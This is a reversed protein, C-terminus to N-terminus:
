GDDEEGLNEDIGFRVLVGGEVDVVVDGAARVAALAESSHDKRELSGIAVYDVGAEGVLQRVREPDGSAYVEEVVARRRGTLDTIDHGRWVLEHNEWGLYTPVGSNASIRAYESYPGGIAEIISVDPPQDRLYEVISRDGDTMWALGDIGLPRDSVQNLVMWVLHPVAPLVIVVVIVRRWLRRPTCMGVLVPLALALFTWAQIYSKFVTNMRHLREGYGDMVYIIEPVLFLFVGLMALAVAPRETRRGGGVVWTALTLLLVILLFLTPRLTAAAAMMVVAGLTLVIARSRDPDSGRRSWVLVMAAGAAPLLLSGAYLL